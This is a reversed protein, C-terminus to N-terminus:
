GRDRQLWNPLWQKKSAHGRSEPAGPFLTLEFGSASTKVAPFIQVVVGDSESEVNIRIPVAGEPLEFRGQLPGPHSSLRLYISTLEVPVDMSFRITAGFPGEGNMQLYIKGFGRPTILTHSKGDGGHRVDPRLLLRKVGIRMQVVPQAVFLYWPALQSLHTSAGDSQQFCRALLAETERYVQQFSERHLRVCLYPVIRYWQGASIGSTSAGGEPWALSSLGDEQLNLRKVAALVRHVHKEPLVGELGLVDAMWVATLQGPHCASNLSPGTASQPTDAPYLTYYGHTENWFYREFNQTARERARAYLPTPAMRKMAVLEECAHLAVLWIGATIVNLGSAFAGDLGPEESQIDPFGDLNKDQALLLAMVRQLHPVLQSIAPLNGSYLYNRFATLVLSAGAEVQAAGPGVYEPDDTQGMGESVLLGKSDQLVLRGIRELTEMEMRPYFLLLAMSSHWRDRLYNVRPDTRGQFLGFAGSRAHLAHGSLVNCSGIIPRVLEWPYGTTGLRQRWASVSAHYYTGNVLGKKAISLADPSSNAYYNGQDVGGVVYRPAYWSIVFEVTRKEGPALTVRHCLAGCRSVAGADPGDTFAGDRELDEWFARASEPDEPDWVRHSIAARDNWRTVLGYQGDANDQIEHLTNFLLANPAIDGEFYTKDRAKAMRGTGTHLRRENDGERNQKANEWDDETVVVHREIPPLFDPIKEDSQGCMNQWNLIASVDQPVDSTNTVQFAIFIVPLASAEYDYPVFPAYIGFTIDVPCQPDLVRCDAQPFDGRFALGSPPLLHDPAQGSLPTQLRRLYVDDGQAARVALFSHPSLPIGGTSNRNNNLRLSRFRGDECFSLTGTGLGGMSVARYKEDEKPPM